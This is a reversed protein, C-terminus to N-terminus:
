HEQNNRIYRGWRITIQKMGHVKRRKGATEALLVTSPVYFNNLLYISLTHIFIDCSNGRLGM